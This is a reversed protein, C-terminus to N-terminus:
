HVTEEIFNKLEAMSKFRFTGNPTEADISGDAYLVYTNGHADYRGIVPPEPARRATTPDSATAQRPPVAPAAPKEDKVPQQPPEPAKEASQEPAPAPASEEESSLAKDLWDMKDADDDFVVPAAKMPEPPPISPMTPEGRVEHRPEHAPEVVPIVPRESVAFSPPYLPEEAPHEDEAATEEEAAEDTVAHEPEGAEEHHGAPHAPEEHAAHEVSEIDHKSMEPEAEAPAEHSVVPAAAIHQPTDFMPLEAQEDAKEETPLTPDGPEKFHDALTDSIASVGLASALGAAAPAASIPPVAPPAPTPVSIQPPAPAPVFRERTPEKIVAILANLRAVVASLGVLIAGAAFLDAGSITAQFEQWRWFGFAALVAGFAMLALGFILVLYNM